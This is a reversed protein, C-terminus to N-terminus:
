QESKQEAEVWFRPNVKTQFRKLSTMRKLFQGYLLMADRAVVGGCKMMAEHAALAYLIDAYETPLTITDADAVLETPETVGSIEILAGGTAPAPHIITKRALHLGVASWTSVPGFETTTEQLWRPSHQILDKFPLPELDRGDYHVRTPVLITHPTSYIHCNARAIITAKGTIFGTFINLTRIADNCCRTIEAATYFRTNSELRDYTASKFSALSLTAM